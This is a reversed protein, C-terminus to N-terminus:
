FLEVIILLFLCRKWGGHDVFVRCFQAFFLIINICFAVSCNSEDVDLVM